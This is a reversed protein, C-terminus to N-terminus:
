GGSFPPLLAIESGTIFENKSILENNLAVKFDKSKLEPYKEYLVDLFAYVTTETIELTEENCQTVEAILGFYKINLNM